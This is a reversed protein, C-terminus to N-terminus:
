AAAAEAKSETGDAAYQNVVWATASVCRAEVFVSAGIASEANAGSGGNIAVTAPASSRLEYGTAGNIIRVVRGPTPAPLTIVKNADDCTVTVFTSTDSIVGTTGGPAATATRAEAINTKAPTVNADAIHVTDISGDVYQDSDVSEASMHVLDVAGNAIHESDVAADAILTGDIADAAIKATTVAGDAITTGGGLAGHWRNVAVNWVFQVSEYRAIVMSTGSAVLSTAATAFTLTEAADSINVVTVRQGDQLGAELIAGTRSSGGCDVYAVGVGKQKINTQITAGNGTLTQANYREIVHLTTGAKAM